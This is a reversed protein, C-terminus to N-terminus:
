ISKKCVKRKAPLNHLIVVVTTVPTAIYVGFFFFFALILLLLCVMRKSKETDSDMGCPQIDGLNKREKLEDISRKLNRGGYVASNDNQPIESCLYGFPIKRNGSEIIYLLSGSDGEKAFVQGHTGKIRYCMRMNETGFLPKGDSTYLTGRTVGTIAGLKEVTLRGKNDLLMKAVKKNSALPLNINEERIFNVANICNESEELKILAIDHNDDYLGQHFKGEKLNETNYVRIEDKCGRSNEHDHDEKLQGHLDSMTKDCCPHPDIFCSHYCTIAYHENRDATLISITGDADDKERSFIKDGSKPGRLFRPPPLLETSEQIFDVFSAINVGFIKKLDVMSPAQDRAHTIYIQWSKEPENTVGVYFDKVWPLGALKKMSEEKMTFNEDFVNKEFWKRRSERDDPKIFYCIFQKCKNIIKLPHLWIHPFFTGEKKYTIFPLVEEGFLEVLDHTCPVTAFRLVIELCRKSGKRDAKIIKFSEVWELRLLGNTYERKIESNEDLVNTEFWEIKSAKKYTICPLIDEGLLEVIDENCPVEGYKCVIELNYDNGEEYADVISFSQVWKFRAMKEKYEKKMEGNEHFAGMDFWKYFANNREEFGSDVSHTEDEDSVIPASEKIGSNSTSSLMTLQSDEIVHDVKVDASIHDRNDVLKVTGDYSGFEERSQARGDIDFTNDDDGGTIKMVAECDALTFTRSRPKDYEFIHPQIPKVWYKNFRDYKKVDCWIGPVRMIQFRVKINTANTPLLFSSESDETEYHKTEGNEQFDVLMKSLWLGESIYKLEYKVPGTFEDSNTTEDVLTKYRPLGCDFMGRFYEGTIKTVREYYFNGDLTYTCSVPTDYKFVHPKTPTIWCKKFHNYKKVDCWVSPARMVQFRVRINTANNPILISSGSGRAEHHKEEGNEEYDVLMKSFWSGKSIYQLRVREDQDDRSTNMVKEYYLNGDLTYTRSVPKDYKFVHPKTPEVWYKKFHDYEKVDSWIGPARMVQFRVKIKTANNPILISSGSGEGERHKEEGNEEYDVLMKSSWSGKSIYKLKKEKDENDDDTSARKVKEYYLNGALTYTRSVPKDYEFIHPKTPEVWCKKFHDYEKVDCWIGPARMVQFRVKIKTANNPILILSGSGESERHKEEGNEEYDVLMKSSWSGKSIYKLKKEKDENDDDTSARKVKEYYLNGDLTYTRSVPKDYEFIHPKTPEVWCKKFHDYEKVDSWIGPARMVQFRVKIKTANDPLMISSGSGEGERHKEEGNEEYDVLMKSSWSEKSIYTMSQGALQTCENYNTEKKEYPPTRKTFDGKVNTEVPMPMYVHLTKDSKDSNGKANEGCDDQKIERNSKQFKDSMDNSDGTSEENDSTTTIGDKGVTEKANRAALTTSSAYNKTEDCTEESIDHFTENSNAEMGTIDEGDEIIKPVENDIMTLHNGVAIAALRAGNKIDDEVSNNEVDDDLHEILNAFTEVAIKTVVEFRNPTSSSIVEFAAAVDKASVLKEIINETLGGRLGAIGGLLADTLVHLLFEEWTIKQGDALVADLNNAVSNTFGRFVHRTMRIAIQRELSLKADKLALKAKGDLLKAIEAVGGGVAAGGVAGIMLSSFYKKFAKAKDILDRSRSSIGCRFTAGSAAIIGLAVPETMGATLFTLGVGGALLLSSLILLGIKRTHQKRQEDSYTEANFLGKWRWKSYWGKDYDAINDYAARAEPDKLIKYAIIIKQCITKDGYEPNRDPHWRLLQSRYAKKIMENQEEISKKRVEKMDLRLIEYLNKNGSASVEEKMNKRRLCIQKEKLPLEEDKVQIDDDGSVRLLIDKEWM